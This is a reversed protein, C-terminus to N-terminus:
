GGVSEVSACCSLVVQALQRKDELTSMVTDAVITHVGLSAIDAEIAADANDLVFVDAFDQYMAAVSRASVEHGLDRLM